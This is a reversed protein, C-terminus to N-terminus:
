DQLRGKRDCELHVRWERGDDDEGWYESLALVSEQLEYSYLHHHAEDDCRVVLAEERDRSWEITVISDSSASREIADEVARIDDDLAKARDWAWRGDSVAWDTLDDGSRLWEGVVSAPIKNSVAWAIMRYAGQWWAVESRLARRREARRLAELAEGYWETESGPAIEHDLQRIIDRAAEIDMRDM